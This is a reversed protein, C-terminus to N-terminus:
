EYLSSIDFIIFIFIQTSRNSSSSLNQWAGPEARLEAVLRSALGPFWNRWRCRGNCLLEERKVWMTTKKFLAKFDGSCKSGTNTLSPIWMVPQLRGPFDGSGPWWVTGGIACHTAHLQSCSGPSWWPCFGNLQWWIHCLGVSIFQVGKWYFWSAFCNLLWAAM